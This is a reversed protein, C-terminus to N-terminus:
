EVGGVGEGEWEARVERGNERAGVSGGREM